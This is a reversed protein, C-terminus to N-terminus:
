NYYENLDFSKNKFGQTQIFMKQWISFGVVIWLYNYHWRLQSSPKSDIIRKLYQYNFIGQEQIFEKTLIRKATHKLDKKFQLFPNIAFGWKKKRLIRKPLKKEMARRLIYKTQNNKIKIGVPITQAFNVLDVDLFPVRQEISNAMSMRDEVLLYDNVMKSHKEVYLVKELANISNTKEFLGAFYDATKRLSKLTSLYEQSYINKYAKKDYDWCNRLILYFKEINGVSLLMQMARRFEDTSLPCTSNQINFLIQSKISGLQKMWKPIKSHLRAMPYIIKHIDYGAFLEDGGLGGLVVKVREGVFKSLSYGQLLNIKPEECHWIVRPLTQMLNLKLKKTKHNTGFYDAVCKADEFEDTPENFGLTFTNIDEVGLESMKQVISSSDLGGSLYVGIPVDSVLQRKVAQKLYFNIGEKAEGRSMKSNITVGQSTTYKTISIKGKHFKLYHAPQLRKIGSFLTQDSQTYRLNLQLHLAQRDLQRPVKPHSIISKQESAFVFRKSDLYYHMPKVGFVDRGLFLTQDAIDLLAFAFIGNLRSFIDVGFEEFGHIITETDSKTSFCHGLGILEDRLETYNYIEGNFVICKDRVENYIPQDGTFLDIIALRTHGLTFNKHTAWFTGDPGRHEVIKLMQEITNPNTRDEQFFGAIGCM